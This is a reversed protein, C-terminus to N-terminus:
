LDAASRSFRDISDNLLDRILQDETATDNPKVGEQSIKPSQAAKIDKGPYTMILVSMKISLVNGQYVPAELTVQLQFGKLKKEAMVKKAAAPSEREPAIGFVSSEKLRAHMLKRILATVEPTPRGSNNTTKGIAVYWRAGDPIIPADDRPSLAKIAKAIQSKVKDNPESGERAKLCPLGEPKKLKGLAAASAARVAENSDELAGCLPQVAADDKTAGLGLAAQTRVRWEDSTKLQQILVETKSAAFASSCALLTLFGLAVALSRHHTSRAM